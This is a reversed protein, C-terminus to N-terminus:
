WNEMSTSSGSSHHGCDTRCASEGYSASSSKTFSTIHVTTTSKTSNLAYRAPMAGDEDAILRSMKGGHPIVIHCTNCGGTGQHNAHGSMSVNDNHCNACWSSSFSTVNPWNAANPGRLIFQNASGHPGQSASAVYNTTTADHCDSCLMTQTGVNVNWPAKLAAAALAKPTKSNPYNNLGTVIPHGSLNMPSFEQAVDTEVPTTATGNPSNGNPPTGTGWSFASHCKFCIQYENTVATLVYYNGPTATATFTVPSGSLGASTATVTYTGAVSGLTLTTSAQGNAATVTGNTSLSQGAAGAAVAAIAFTVSADSAPNANADTATVVFPSALAVYRRGNQGNGSTVSLKAAPGALVIFAASNGTVLTDGSTRAAALVVGSEAKTYTVNSLTVSSTGALITGSLTGGLTGTGAARSLTVVSDTAANLPTGGIGQIQVAVTFSQGAAPNTGGNISTIALQAIGMATFTVPSGNLGASTASITYTGVKTGLTLTSSAQGTAASSANTVSLWQGTAAGPVTAIAFTVATGAVPNTYADSVTVVFSSTLSTGVVGSQNNGSTLTLNAPAGAVVTFSASNGTTLTDGATRGATLVVGSEAKTYSVNSITVSSTGASIIGALTGGLTGTGSARSLTVATDTLTNVSAGSTGRVQVVVNFNTGAIPSVGNNVSSIALNATANGTFTVPSGNLGTATATVMYPGFNNGLILTSSAQGNTGTVANTLSLSQGTANGPVTAIAFTVGTGSVVNSNADTVTVVFPNALTALGLASQNNGSTLTLTAAAGAVVTFVASNGSAVADGGTPSATLAVGSEAKTYTVNSITVSSTGALITGTLTGGLTGTGSARTLTVTTDTLTNVVGGGAGQVKVMVSFGAGATPNIGGNVSTVALNATANATFTVPSGTLSSSTATVTYPGFINGLTLTSSAQGNALTTANTISLWQGTASGPVAAIAFTVSTGGVPNGGTDTVTAVLPSALTALALGSQNNGSTLALAAAPGAVVSFASSNGSTLNDGSTRTATLMVNTEAKTYTAGSITVSSTGALITGNTTGGLTGTGSARNLMIATDTLVNVPTGGATQAQVVLSFSNGVTPSVGGNVSTIALQPLAIVLNVNTGSVQISGSTNPGIATGAVTFTGNSAINGGAQQIINYTGNTLPSATNLTFANGNLSLTGQSIYLAPHLGDSTLLIPQSGLNITGSAGGIITAASVGVITNTGSATLITSGGLTYTASAGFGSVDLTAGAALNLSTGAVLNSGPSLALTGHSITTAGVVILNSALTVVNTPFNLLNSITLSNVMAPLGIGANQPTTGDYIYNANPSFIRTGNVRIFGNTGGSAPVIGSADSIGLTAGDTLVFNGDGIVRQGNNGQQLFGGSDVTLTCGSAITMGGATPTRVLGVLNTIELNGYIGIGILIQNANGALLLKSNGTGTAITGVSGVTAGNVIPTSTAMLTTDNAINLQCSGNITLRGCTANIDCVVPTASAAAIVVDDASGPPVGGVWAAPNSWNGGTTQSTITAAPTTLSGLLTVMLWFTLGSRYLTFQSPNPTKM